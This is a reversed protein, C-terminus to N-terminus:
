QFCTHTPIHKEHFYHVIDNGALRLMSGKWILVQEIFGEKKLISDEEPSGYEDESDEELAGYKNESGDERSGYEEEELTGYEDERTKYENEPNGYEEESDKERRCFL